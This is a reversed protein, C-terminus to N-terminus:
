RVGSSTAAVQFSPPSGWRIGAAQVTLVAPSCTMIPRVSHRTSAPPNRDFNTGITKALKAHETAELPPHRRRPDPFGPHPSEPRRRHLRQGIPRGRSGQAPPVPRRERGLPRVQDPLQRRLLVKPDPPQPLRGGPHRGSRRRDRGESLPVARRGQRLRGVHRPVHRRPWFKQIRHNHADAVYVNGARDVAVSRPFVFQGDGSGRGGWKAVFRGDSALKQIRHNHTDAVYMSGVGDVAVGMPRTFQGDGRGWGRGAALVLSGDSFFKQIRHNGGAVYVNDSADVTIGTAGIEWKALFRGDHSFKRIGQLNDAVYVNGSGDVAVGDPMNFDGDRLGDWRAVFRGDATSKEIGGGWYHATYVDGSAEVAVDTAGGALWQALFRGDATFKQIRNNGRHAVYLNGSGDVAIGEPHRFQGDASGFGGWQTLFSGDSSFKQVRHYQVVYVNGSRDAAVDKPENRGRDVIPGNVVIERNGLTFTASGQAVVRPPPQTLAFSRPQEQVSVRVGLGPRQPCAEAVGADDV